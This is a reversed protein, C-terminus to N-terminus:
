ASQLNTLAEEIRRQNKLIIGISNYCTAIDLHIPAQYKKQIELATICLELTKNYKGQKNRVSVVNGFGYTM